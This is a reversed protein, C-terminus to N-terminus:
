TLARVISLFLIDKLKQHEPLEDYPVICPHQQMRENKTPGYTWGSAEKFRVWQEHMDEATAAPHRRAWDVGFRVSQRVHETEAMWPLPSMDGFLACLARNAEHAISCVAERDVPRGKVTTLDPMLM